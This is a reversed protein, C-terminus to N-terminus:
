HKCFLLYRIKTAHILHAKLNSAVRDYIDKETIRGWHDYHYVNFIKKNNSIESLLAGNYRSHIMTVLSYVTKNSSFLAQITGTSLMGKEHFNKQYHTKVDIAHIGERYGLTNLISLLQTKNGADLTKEEKPFGYMLPHDPDMFYNYTTIIQKGGIYVTHHKLQLTYGSNSLNPLKEYINHEKLELVTNRVGLLRKDHYTVEKANSPAPVYTVTEKLVSFPWDLSVAPCSADGKVPCYTFLLTRGYDDIKKLLNGSDDYRAYSTMVLPALGSHLSDWVKKVTKVPFAYSAPLQNFTLRNCNLSAIDSCYYKQIDQVPLHSTDSIIKQDVVLHYKDYTRITTTKGNDVATRYRYKVSTDFLVDSGINPIAHVLSGFALYNHNSINVADYKYTVTPANTDDGAHLEIIHKIVVPKDRVYGNATLYLLDKQGAQFDYKYQDAAGSPYIIQDMYGREYYFTFGLPAKKGGFGADFRANATSLTPLFIRHVENNATTITFINFHGNADVSKVDVHNYRRTVKITNGYEDIIRDLFEKEGLQIYYFKIWHGTEEEIKTLYGQPSLTERLGTKLTVTFGTIPTGTIIMDKLKHYVTGWSGDARQKILFTRGASTTLAHTVRNYHAINWSWGQAIGDINATAGSMYSLSLAFLPGKGLNSDLRAVNISCSLTGTRPDVSSQFGGKFNNANSFQGSSATAIKLTNFKASPSSFKDHILPSPAVKSLAALPLMALLLLWMNLTKM